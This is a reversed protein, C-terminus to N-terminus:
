PIPSLSVKMKEEDSSERFFKRAYDFTEKVLDEPVSHNKVTVAPLRVSPPHAPWTLKTGNLERGGLVDLSQSVTSSALM